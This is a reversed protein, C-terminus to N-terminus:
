IDGITLVPYFARGCGEARWTVCTLRFSLRGSISDPVVDDPFPPVCSGAM